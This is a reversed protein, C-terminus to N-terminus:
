HLFHREGTFVMALGLEDATAINTTTACRAARSSSWPWARRRRGGRHRRPVPLLRRERVRRGRGPRRGEDGRDRGVRGPEASRRRHGVARRGERARDREVEGLRVVRWALEADAWEAETPARKTVVRWDDRAARSTTRRGARPLRRTIQRVPARDADPPAAGRAAPHEQAEATLAEISAPARLGPAIVVDAQPPRSWASSPPTTSRATSRSSAVSRRASTASSAGAPVRRRPRRGGGRRVPQRAQHHRGGPQGTAPWTTSSGGRPTPTTSTSTASRSAATSRRRRGVLQTTGSRATARAAHQHPNEGYRLTRTPASSRRPALTRRCRTTPAEDFWRSSRRRRLRRHPRVGDRALARRTADALAGGDSAARRAGGRVAVPRHRDGVHAHNKAAARVMAPGGIDILRSAAPDFTSTARVPLPQSVVLDIPEIGYSPWTPTTTRTAGTPSSAATCRRTCRSWGTTSSRRSRRHARRRRHGAVGADRSRRPPAAAVVGAGVRPRALERALEVIGTKDYVSLLARMPLRIRRASRHTARPGSPHSRPLPPARGGQHARAAVRRHRRAPGAGGGPRPDARRRGRAHRRAGHLGTVKVGDALADRVAHWGKFAPLLAPHTNLIRGAFADHIPQGPHHRVRGDRRPRSRARAAGGGAAATYAVRDFGAGFRHARGARRRRRARGRHGLGRVAPRAVVVGGPDGRRAHRALIDWEGVGARGSARAPVSGAAGPGETRASRAPPDRNRPGRLVDRM